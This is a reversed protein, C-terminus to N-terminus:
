VRKHMPITIYQDLRGEIIGIDTLDKAMKSVFARYMPPTPMFVQSAIDEPFVYNEIVNQAILVIEHAQFELEQGNIRIILKTYMKIEM